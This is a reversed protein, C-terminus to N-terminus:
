GGNIALTRMISFFFGKWSFRVRQLIYFLCTRTRDLRTRSPGVHTCNKMGTLCFGCGIGTYDTTAEARNPHFGAGVGVRKRILNRVEAKSCDAPTNLDKRSTILLIYFLQRHSSQTVTNSQIDYGASMQHSEKRKKVSETCATGMRGGGGGRGGLEVTVGVEAPAGGRGPGGGGGGSGVVSVGM